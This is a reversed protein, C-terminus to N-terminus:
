VHLEPEVPRLGLQEALGLGDINIWSEALRNHQIRDVVTGMVEVPTGSGPLGRYPGLHTGRLLFRCSIWNGDAVFDHPMVRLDPFGVRYEMVAIRMGDQGYLDGDVGHLIHHESVLEEILHMNGRNLIEEVFRHVLSQNRTKM